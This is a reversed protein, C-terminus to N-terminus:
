PARDKSWDVNPWSFDPEDDKPRLLYTSRWEVPPWDDPPLTSDTTGQGCHTCETVTPSYCRGCRPCEWGKM